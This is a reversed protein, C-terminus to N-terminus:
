LTRIGLFLGMERWRRVALGKLARGGANHWKVFECSAKVRQNENLLRLLTSDRLAGTGVNFAFSALADFEHQALNVHVASEIVLEVHTLDERLFEEAQEENIMDGLKVGVTHGYGITPVGVSDEYADLRSGESLKILAIGQEGTKM